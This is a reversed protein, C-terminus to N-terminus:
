INKFREGFTRDSEGMYEDDCDLEHCRYWYIIRIKFHIYVEWEAQNEIFFEIEKSCIWNKWLVCVLLGDRFLFMALYWRGCM